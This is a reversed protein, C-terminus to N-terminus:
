VLSHWDCCDTSEQKIKRPLSQERWYQRTETIVIGPASLCAVNETAWVTNLEKKKVFLLTVIDTVNEKLLVERNYSIFELNLSWFLLLFVLKTLLQVM